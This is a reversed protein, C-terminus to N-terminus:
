TNQGSTQGKEGPKEELSTKPQQSSSGRAPTEEEEKLSLDKKVKRFEKLAGGLGKGIEPLRKAGFLLFVIVGVAILEGAGFGFM